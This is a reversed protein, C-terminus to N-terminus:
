PRVSRHESSFMVNVTRPILSAVLLSGPLASGM